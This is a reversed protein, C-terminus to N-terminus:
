ANTKEGKAVAPKAFYKQKMYPIAMFIAVVVASLMKLM